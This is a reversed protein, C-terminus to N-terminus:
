PELDFTISRTSRNGAEDRATIQATYSRPTLVGTPIAIGLPIVTAGTATERKVKTSGADKVLKGTKADLITLQVDVSPSTAPEYIEAYIYAKEPKLLRNTGAPILQVGKFTLPVKEGFLDAEADQSAAGAPRVSQSLALGSLLFKSPTWQDITLATEVKGFSVASSSFAVKLDFAGSPMEFQKEYHYPRRAFQEVQKRDNLVVRATDSFRAAVGGDPLYAIGIINLVAAFSGNDKAFHIAAGPIDMAMDVRATNAAVYFFSTQMTAHVTATANANLRAELNRETPTGPQVDPAKEDCYSTRARVDAGGRDVDVKIIHCAGPKSAKAPAYGLAYYQSAEKAIRELDDPLKGSRSVVFGGTGTAVGSLLDPAFEPASRDSLANLEAAAAQRAAPTDQPPSYKLQSRGLAANGTSAGGSGQTTLARIDVPYVAVNARNCAGIAAEMQDPTVTGGESFLIVTKRGPVRALGKALNKLAAPLAGGTENGSRINVIVPPVASIPSFNAANVAQKLKDADDTLNQTVRLTGNFEVTAM